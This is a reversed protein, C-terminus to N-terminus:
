GAMRDALLNWWLCIRYLACGSPDGLTSSLTQLQGTDVLVLTSLYLLSIFFGSWFWVKRDAQLLFWFFLLAAITELLSSSLDFYGLYLFMSGLVAIGLGATISYTTFYKGIKFV